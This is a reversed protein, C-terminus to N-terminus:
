TPKAVTGIATVADDANGPKKGGMSNVPASTPALLPSNPRCAYVSPPTKSLRPTRMNRQKSRGRRASAANLRPLIEEIKRREDLRNAARAFVADVAGSRRSASITTAVLRASDGNTARGLPAVGRGRDRRSRGLPAAFLQQGFVQIMDQPMVWQLVFRKKGSQRERVGFSQGEKM